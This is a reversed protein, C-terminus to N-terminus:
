IFITNGFVNQPSSNYMYIGDSVNSTILNNGIPNGAIGTNSLVIGWTNNTITCSLISPIYGAANCYIGRYANKITCYYLSGCSGNYFVIGNLTSSNPSVFDFTIASSSTGNANLTGNVTLSAGSSFDLESGALITLTVGSNVTVTEGVRIPFSSTFCQWTEPQSITGWWYPSLDAHMTTGSNSINTILVNSNSGNELRSNAPSTFDTLRRINNAGPFPDGDDAAYVQVPTGGPPTYWFWNQGDAEVLDIDGPDVLNGWDVRVRWVLLGGQPLFRNWGGDTQRNEVLFYEWDTDRIRYVNNMQSTYTLTQQLTKATITNVSIWGLRYRLQPEIPAPNNGRVSGKNGGDAMLGWKNYYYRLDEYHDHLGLIHGFEHCHVGIHSFTADNLEADHMGDPLYKFRESM